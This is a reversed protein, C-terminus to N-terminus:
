HHIIKYGREAAGEHGHKQGYASGTREYEDQGHHHKHDAHHEDYKGQQKSGARKYSSDQHARDEHGGSAQKGTEDSHHQHASGYKRFQGQHDATDYFIHEKKYEDKHYVNHYGTTKSGKKHHKKEHHKGGKTRKAAAHHDHYHSGEDHYSHKRDGDQGYRHEHDEKGYSGKSGKTLAHKSDYGKVGKEGKKGHHEEGYSSGKAEEIEEPGHELVKYAQRHLQDEREDHEDSEDDEQHAKEDGEEEGSDLEYEISKVVPYFRASETLLHPVTHGDLPSSGLQISHGPSRSFYFYSSAAAEDTSRHVPPPAGLVLALLCLAVTVTGSRARSLSM